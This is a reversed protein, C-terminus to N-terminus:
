HPAIPAVIELRNGRAEALYIPAASCLDTGFLAGRVGGYVLPGHLRRWDHDEARRLLSELFWMGEYISQGITNLMPASDGYHGYYREKFADNGASRLSGFYGAAAFLGDSNEEGIGLLVNEEVACSFRLISAGLGARGFARNFAVSDQGVLSLLLADPRLTRIWDISSDFASSGLPLYREGLVEARGETLFRKALGHTVRPWVYDNGLLAWRRLRYRSSLVELAPMLQDAPTEGIAFVGPTREGGEYLPTYVYPLRGGIARAMAQRVVSIHMGVVADIEGSAQLRAARAAVEAPDGGADEIRLVVERGLVGGARNIEQAALTASARCSPGWIGAAGSIPIMLGVKLPPPDRHSRSPGRGKLAAAQRRWKAAAKRSAM